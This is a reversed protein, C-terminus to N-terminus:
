SVSTSMKRGHQYHCWYLASYIHSGFLGSVVTEAELKGLAWSHGQGEWLKINMSPKQLWYIGGISLCSQCPHKDSARLPILHLESLLVFIPLSIFVQQNGAQGKNAETKSLSLM